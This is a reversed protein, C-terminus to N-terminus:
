LFENLNTFFSDDASWFIVSLGFTNASIFGCLKVVFCQSLINFIILFFIFFNVFDM